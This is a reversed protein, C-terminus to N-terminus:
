AVGLVRRIVSQSYGYKKSLRIVGVRSKSHEDIIRQQTESDVNVAYAARANRANELQSLRLGEARTYPLNVERLKGRRRGSRVEDNFVRIAENGTIEGELYRIATLLDQKKKVCYPLMARAARLVSKAESIDLRYAAQWVGKNDRGIASVSIRHRILFAGISDLQPRYTDAFRIRLRLVRKVAEIGVNGDGDFYGAVQRWSSYGTTGRPTTM